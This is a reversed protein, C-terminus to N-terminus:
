CAWPNHFIVEEACELYDILRDKCYQYEEENRCERDQYDDEHMEALALAYRLKARAARAVELSEPDTPVLSVALTDLDTDYSGSLMRLADEVKSRAEDIIHPTHDAPSYIPPGLVVVLDVTELYPSYPVYVWGPPAALAKPEESDERYVTYFPM